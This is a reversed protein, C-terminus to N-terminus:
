ISAKKRIIMKHCDLLNYAQSLNSFSIFKLYLMTKYVKEFKSSLSLQSSFYNWVYVNWKSTSKIQM